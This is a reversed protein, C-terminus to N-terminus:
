AKLSKVTEKYDKSKVLYSGVVLIDCGAEKVKEVTDANIGGDAEIYLELNNNDIHEKLEKITELTKPILAQGGKGPEVTMILCMHILPLIDYIDELKTNPKISIGVKTNSEKILEIYKLLEDKDKAAEYHITLINIGIDLYNKIVEELNEDVMLHVDLPANSIQKLCMTYENMKEMTNAEVFHGDMIDIHFYDIDAVELDYFVRAANEEEVNLISASIEVM